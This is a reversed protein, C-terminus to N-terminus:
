KQDERKISALLELFEKVTGTGEIMDIVEAGHSGIFYFSPTGLRKMGLPLKEVLLNKKVFVFDRNLAEKVETEVMVERDMKMCGRCFPIYGEILIIKGEKKAIELAETYSYRKVGHEIMMNEAYEYMFDALKEIEEESVKGKMSPMVPFTHRIKKRLVSKDKNPNNLYDALFEEIEFKQGEADTTRDGVQDKLRFSLETLTPAKLKLDTNNHDYNANLRNQSIYYEHCSACKTKFVEEGSLAFLITTFSITLFLILRM